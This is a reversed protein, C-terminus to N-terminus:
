ETITFACGVAFAPVGTVMHEFEGASIEVPAVEVFLLPVSQVVLPSPVNSSAVTKFPVCYAAPGFSIAAPLTVIVKVAVPFVGQPLAVEEFIMVIVDAAVAKAPVGTFVQEPEPATFM